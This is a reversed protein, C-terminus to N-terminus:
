RNSNKNEKAGAGKGSAADDDEYEMDARVVNELFTSFDEKVEIIGTQEIERAKRV